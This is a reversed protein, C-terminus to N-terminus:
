VPKVLKLDSLINKILTLCDVFKYKFHKGNMERVYNFDILFKIDLVYKNASNM